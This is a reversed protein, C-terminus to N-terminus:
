IMRRELRCKLQLSAGKKGGEERLDTDALTRQAVTFSSCCCPILVGSRKFSNLADSHQDAANLELSNRLLVSTRSAGSGGTLPLPTSLRKWIRDWPLAGLRRAALRIDSVHIWACPPSVPPLPGM